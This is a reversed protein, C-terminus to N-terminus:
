KYEIIASRRVENLYRKSVVEYRANFLEAKAERKQLTDATNQQRDCLAFVAVGQANEEPKTLKGIPTNNLIDRLNNPLDTSSKRVPDRVAVDRLMRALAIGSDCNEFRSRLAEAERMRGDVVSRPSGKPVIFLIQRLRYDYAVAEEGGKKELADRIEKEEVSLTAPFRARVLQGWAIDARVRHKITEIDVGKSTLVQTFQEINLGGRGAMNGISRDIEAKPVELSYRAAEQTKLKEEILEDIIEQRSLAKHASLQTFRSRQEIDYHTIPAGNVFVAVQALAPRAAALNAAIMAAALWFCPAIRTLTMWFGINRQSKM